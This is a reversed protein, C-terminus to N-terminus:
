HECLDVILGSVSQSYDSITVLLSSNIVSGSYLHLPASFTIRTGFKGDTDEFKPRELRSKAFWEELANRM